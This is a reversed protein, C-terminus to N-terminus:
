ELEKFAKIWERKILEHGELTPHVGDSLLSSAPMEAAAKDFKSQLEVFKLGHKDAIKRTIEAMVRVDNRFNEFRDPQGERNTTASGELVFPELIMIKTEPLEEKIEEILINYVKEFRETGTGNDFDYGHWVDNIGVLFSICDPRISIIDRVIRAYVDPIRNGSVGRNIFIYEGDSDANMEDAVLAPYGKGLPTKKGLYKEFFMMIGKSKENYMRGCDTISDGQFLITKM